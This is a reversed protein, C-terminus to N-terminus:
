IEVVNMRRCGKRVQEGEWQYWGRSLVWKEKRNETKSLLCKQKHLVAMSLTEKHCNWTDIYLLRVQKM